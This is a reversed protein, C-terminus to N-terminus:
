PLPDLNELDYHKAYLKGTTGMRINGQDRTVGNEVLAFVDDQGVQTSIHTAFADIHTWNNADGFSGTASPIDFGGLLSSLGTVSLTTGVGLSTGIDGSGQVDLDVSANLNVALLDGCGVAGNNGLVQFAVPAGSALTMGLTSTNGETLVTNLDPTDGVGSGAIKVITDDTTRIYAGPSGVNANIALEGIEIDSTTPAKNLVSTNKLKIRTAM